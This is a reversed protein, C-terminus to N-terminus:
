LGKEHKFQRAANMLGWYPHNVSIDSLNQGNLTAHAAELMAKHTDQDLTEVVAESPSTDKTESLTEDSAGESVLLDDKSETM